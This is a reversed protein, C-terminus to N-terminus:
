QTELVLSGERITTTIGNQDIILAGRADIGQVRGPVPESCRRGRAMDRETFRQLEDPTLPGTVGAADRIGRVVKDLVELRAVGKALGAAPIDTPAVVNLGFGIAVWDPRDGRWRAEILTGALKRDGVYLDNPWKLVVREGAFRDLLPALTIGIRLSLVEIAATDTPREIMTLWLGERPASRWSRGARGRGSTQEEALVLTGASAGERAVAHAVDLTSTVREFLEARRLRLRRALRAADLGEFHTAAVNEM